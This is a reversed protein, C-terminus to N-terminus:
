VPALIAGDVKDRKLLGALELASAEMREPPTAGMFSYHFDAASGIAGQGELEILRDIPFVVNVDQQYGSRDFNTSVHSMQIQGSPFARPIVRYDGAGGAFTREGPVHLGATSIIAIRRKALAPGPAWPSGEFAPLELGSLHAADAPDLDSFRVM